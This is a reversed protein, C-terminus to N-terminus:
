RKEGGRPVRRRAWQSGAIAALACELTEREVAVSLGLRNCHMHLLSLSVADRQEGAVEQLLRRAASRHQRYEPWDEGVLSKATRVARWSDTALRGHSGIVRTGWAVADAPVAFLALVAGVLDTVAFQTKDVALRFDRLKSLVYRSDVTFFSEALAIAQLGGYREIERDYTAFEVRELKGKDVLSRLIEVIRTFLRQDYEGSASRFRLRVHPEPDSYQLFHMERFSGELEAVIRSVETELFYTARTPGCYCKSYVWESGPPRLYDSASITEVPQRPRQRERTAFDKRKLSVALEAVYEGFTGAICADSFFPVPEELRIAAAGREQRKAAAHILRRCLALDLDLLLRQDRQALYVYRPVRWRRLWAKATGSELDRALANPVSWSALSVVIGESVVRPRYPLASAPEGWGFGVFPYDSASLAALFHAVRSNGAANLLHSAHPEIRQNLRVSRLYARGGDSGVVLDDLSITRDPPLASVVGHVIEYDFPNPRTAVNTSRRWHPLYSVEADIADGHVTGSRLLKVVTEEGLVDAFRAISRGAGEHFGEVVCALVSGADRTLHCFGEYSSAFRYAPDRDGLNELDLSQLEIENRRDAAADLAFELLRADYRDRNRRMEKFADEFALGEEPDLVRLLPVERGANYRRVFAEAIAKNTPVPVALRALRAFIRELERAIYSPLAGVYERACDVVYYHKPPVLREAIGAVDHLANVGALGSANVQRLTEVVGELKSGTEPDARRLAGVFHATLDSTPSGRLETILVGLAVLRRILNLAAEDDLGRKRKLLEALEQALIPERAAEIAIAVSRTLNLSSLVPAVKTEQEDEDAAYVATRAADCVSLRGHIPYAAGADLVRLQSFAESEEIKLALADLWGADPRSRPCFEAGAAISIPEAEGAFRSLGITGCLGFPTARMTSRAVYALLAAAVREEDVRDGALWKDVADALSPSAVRVVTRVDDRQRALAQLSEFLKPSAYLEALMSAPFAPTRVGVVDIAEYQRTM